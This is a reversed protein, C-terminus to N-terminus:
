DVAEVNGAVVLACKRENDLTICVVFVINIKILHRHYSLCRTRGDAHTKHV